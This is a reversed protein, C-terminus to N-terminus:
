FVVLDLTLTFVATMEREVGGGAVGWGVRGGRGREAVGARGQQGWEGAM